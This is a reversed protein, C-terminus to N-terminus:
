IIFFCWQFGKLSDICTAKFVFMCSMINYSTDSLFIKHKSFLYLCIFDFIYSPYLHIYFIPNKKKVLSSDFQLYLCVTDLMAPVSMTRWSARDNMISMSHRPASTPSPSAQTHTWRSCSSWADEGRSWPTHSCSGRISLSGPYTLKVGPWACMYSICLHHLWGAAIFCSWRFM